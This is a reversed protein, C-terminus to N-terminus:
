IRFIVHRAELGELKTPVHANAHFHGIRLHADYQRPQQPAEIERQGVFLIPPVPSLLFGVDKPYTYKMGIHIQLVCLQSYSVDHLVFHRQLYDHAM